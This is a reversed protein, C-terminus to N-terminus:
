KMVEFLLRSAIVALMVVYTIPVGESPSCGMISLESRAGAMPKGASGQNVHPEAIVKAAVAEMADAHGAVRM